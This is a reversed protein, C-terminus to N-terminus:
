QFVPKVLTRPMDRIVTFGFQEYFSVATSTWLIQRLNKVKPHNTMVGMLWTGLGKGRYPGAVIFDLIVAYTAYDTLMRSFGIQTESAFLCFCLSNEISTQIAKKSRNAAWHSEQLLDAVTDPNVSSKDDCITFHSGRIWKM